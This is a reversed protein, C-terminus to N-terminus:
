RVEMHRSLPCENLCEGIKIPPIDEWGDAHRRHEQITVHIHARRQVHSLTKIMLDRPCVQDDYRSYTMEAVDLRWFSEIALDALEQPRCVGLSHCQSLICVIEYHSSM